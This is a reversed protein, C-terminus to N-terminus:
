EGYVVRGGGWGSEVLRWVCLYEMVMVLGGGGDIGVVVGGGGM